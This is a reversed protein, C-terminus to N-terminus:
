RLKGHIVEAKKRPNQSLNREARILSRIKSQKSGFASEEEISTEPLENSTDTASSHSSYMVM